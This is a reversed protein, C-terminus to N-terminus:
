PVRPIPFMAIRGEGTHCPPLIDPSLRPRGGPLNGFRSHTPAHAARPSAVLVPSSLGSDPGPEALLVAPFLNPLSTSSARLHWKRRTALHRRQRALRGYLRHRLDLIMHFIHSAEAFWTRPQM